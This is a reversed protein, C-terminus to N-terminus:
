GEKLGKKLANLQNLRQEFSNESDNSEDIKGSLDLLSKNM